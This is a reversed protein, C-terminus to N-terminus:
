GGGVARGSTTVIREVLRLALVDAYPLTWTKEDPNWKGGRRKVAERLTHEHYHVRVTVLDTPRLPSTRRPPPWPTEEIILEITKCRTKREDDYRYRVCVLASGHQALLKKTGPRGPQITTKTRFM